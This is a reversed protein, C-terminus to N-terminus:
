KTLIVCSLILNTLKIKEHYFMEYSCYTQFRLLHDSAFITIYKRSVRWKIRRGVSIHLSIAPIANSPKMFYTIHTLHPVLVLKTESSKTKEM